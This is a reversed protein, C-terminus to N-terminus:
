YTTTSGSTSGSMQQMQHKMASVQDHGRRVSAYAEEIAQRCYEPLDPEALAEEYREKLHDEGREVENIIAQEDNGVIAQKINMFTRHAAGAVGSSEQPDGGMSAVHAQLQSAVASREQAMQRFFSARTTDTDEAADEYGHVSDLTTKILGNIISISRSDDM